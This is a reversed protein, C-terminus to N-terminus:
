VHRIPPFWAKPSVRGLRGLSPRCSHVGYRSYYVISDICAPVDCQQSDLPMYGVFMHRFPDHRQDSSAAARASPLSSSGASTDTPIWDRPVQSSHKLWAVRSTGQALNSM